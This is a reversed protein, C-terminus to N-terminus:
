KSKLISSMNSEASAVSLKLKQIKDTISIKEYQMQGEILSKTEVNKKHNVEFQEILRLREKLNAEYLNGIQKSKKKTRLSTKKNKAM